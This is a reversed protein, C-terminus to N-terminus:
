GACVTKKADRIKQCKENTTYGLLVKKYLSGLWFNDECCGLSRHLIASELLPPHTRNSRCEPRSLPATGSTLELDWDCTTAYGYYLLSLLSM